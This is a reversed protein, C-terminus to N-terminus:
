TADRGTWEEKAVIAESNQYRHPGTKEPGSQMGTGCGMQACAMLSSSAGRGGGSLLVRLRLARGAASSTAAMTAAMTQRDSQYATWGCGSRTWPSASAVRMSM